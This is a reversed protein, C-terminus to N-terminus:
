RRREPSRGLAKRGGKLHDTYAALPSQHWVHDHGGPTLDTLNLFSAERRCTDWVFASHWEKLNFVADSSFRSALDALFERTGDHLRVAWFGIESHKRQRGLFAGDSEGLLGEVFGEPVDAHTVVDGDLWVLIDDDPLGAAATQPIFCQRSFKVADYRFSYGRRQDAEKWNMGPVFQRGQAPLNEAHRDLFERQGPCAWLSREFLAPPHELEVYAQLAVSGPWHKFFTREFTEGYEKRGKESFGTCITVAM